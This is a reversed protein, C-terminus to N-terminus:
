WRNSRMQFMQIKYMNPKLVTPAETYKMNKNFSKGLKQITNRTKEEILHHIM